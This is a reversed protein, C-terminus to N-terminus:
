KGKTHNRKIWDRSAIKGKAHVQIQKESLVFGTRASELYVVAQKVTEVDDNFKGIGM